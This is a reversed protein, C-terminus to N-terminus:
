PGKAEIGDFWTGSVKSPGANGSKLVITAVGGASTFAGTNDVAAAQSMTGSWGSRSTWTDNKYILVVDSQGLKRGAM